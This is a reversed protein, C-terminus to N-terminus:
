SNDVRTDCDDSIEKWGHKTKIMPTYNHLGVVGGNVIDGYCIDIGNLKIGTAFKIDDLNISKLNKSFVYGVNGEAVILSHLSFMINGSRFKMVHKRCKINPMTFLTANQLLKFDKPLPVVEGSHIDYMKFGIDYIVYGIMNYNKDLVFDTEFMSADDLGRAISKSQLIPSNPRNLLIIAKDNLVIPCDSLSFYVIEGRTSVGRLRM